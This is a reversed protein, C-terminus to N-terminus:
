LLLIILFEPLCTHAARVTPMQRRPATQFSERLPTRRDTRTEQPQFWRIPRRKVEPCQALARDPNAGLHSRSLCVSYFCGRRCPAALSGSNRRNATCCFLGLMGKGGWFCGHQHSAQARVGDGVGRRHGVPSVRVRLQLWPPILAQPPNGLHPILQGRECPLPSGGDMEAAAPLPQSRGDIVSKIPLLTKM